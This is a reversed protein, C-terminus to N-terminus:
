KKPRGRKKPEPVLEPDITLSKVLEDLAPAKESLVFEGCWNKPPTNEFKPYRRCQGLVFESAQYFKCCNCSETTDVETM